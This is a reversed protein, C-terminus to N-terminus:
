DRIDQLFWETPLERGLGRARAAEYAAGAVAYFQAGQINGRESYTIDAPGTRGKARGDLLEEFYVLRPGGGEGTPPRQARRGMRHQEYVPSDPQAVYVLMEDTPRFDDLGVPAPATGLRLWIDVRDRTREDPRGGICTVHTGAELWDGAIVEGASDTCGCIIDAGRYVDRPDDVAVAEIGYQEAMEAAYRERNAPTPSFVQLRRIQRVRSISELHSRAMGGSGLMGLVAADERAAYKVGIGSDAGVRMHQLYGDNIIALPEANRVSFLLILGCYLGPRTSYKEQTRVGNYEQEYLVDSKARIAFYGSTASGGEMTGWQYLRDDEGTPIRVDIRPRCVADRAALDHYAQELATMTMEMTLVREVDNNNLLLTM